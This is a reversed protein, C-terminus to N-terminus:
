EDDEGVAPALVRGLDDLAQAAGGRVGLGAGGPKRHPLRPLADVIKDAAGVPRQVLGLLRAAVPEDARPDSRGSVIRATGSSSRRRRKRAARRSGSSVTSSP